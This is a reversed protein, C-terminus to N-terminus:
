KSFHGTVMKGKDINIDKEVIVHTPTIGTDQEEPFYLLAKTAM